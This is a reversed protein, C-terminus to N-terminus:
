WLMRKLAFRTIKLIRQETSRAKRTVTSLTAYPNECAALEEGAPHVVLDATVTVAGAVIGDVVMVCCTRRGSTGLPPAAVLTYEVGLLSVVGVEPPLLLPGADPIALVNAESHPVM